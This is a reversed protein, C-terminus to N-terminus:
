IIQLCFSHYQDSNLKDPFRKGRFHATANGQLLKSTDTMRSSKEYEGVLDLDDDEFHIREDGEESSWSDKSGHHYMDDVEEKSLSHGFPLSDSKDRNPGCFREIAAGSFDYQAKHSAFVLTFFIVCLTIAVSTALIRRPIFRTPLNWGTSAM